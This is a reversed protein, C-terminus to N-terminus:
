RKRSCGLPTQVFLVEVLEIAAGIHSQRSHGGQGDIAKVAGCRMIYQRVSDGCQQSGARRKVLMCAVRAFPWRQMKMACDVLCDPYRYAM